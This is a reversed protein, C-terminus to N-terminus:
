KNQTLVRPNFFHNLPGNGQGTSVDKGALIASTVYEKALGVAQPLDYGQALYSAIASSLTCGTGHLNRTKIFDSSYSVMPNDPTFLMDVAEEGVMHGGKILVARCGQELLVEAARHVDSLKRIFVGSLCSAEIINPTIVTLRKYLLDRFAFSVNTRTLPSGSTSKMVPDVVLFPLHYTDVAWAVTEVIEPTPLMGTKVVHITIDDLVSEIQQRVIDTSLLEIGRVQCTNQATIATIVSTGYLGLSSFTKLDAQIGAGGGCDSGAITLAALYTQKQEM